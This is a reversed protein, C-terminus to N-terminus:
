LSFLEKSSSEQKENIFSDTKRKRKEDRLSTFVQRNMKLSQREMVGHIEDSFIM